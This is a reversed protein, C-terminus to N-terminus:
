RMIQIHVHCSQPQHLGIVLALLIPQFILQQFNKRPLQFLICLQQFTKRLIPCRQRRIGFGFRLEAPQGNASTENFLLFRRAFGYKGRALFGRLPIRHLKASIAPQGHADLEIRKGIFEPEGQATCNRM